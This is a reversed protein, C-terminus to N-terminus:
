WGEPQGLRARLWGVTVGDSTALARTNRPLDVGTSKQCGKSLPDAQDIWRSGRDM